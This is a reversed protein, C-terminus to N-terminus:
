RPQTTPLGPGGQFAWLVFGVGVLAAAPAVWAPQWPSSVRPNRRRQRRRAM